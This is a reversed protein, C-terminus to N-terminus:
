VVGETILKYEVVLQWIVQAVLVVDEGIIFDIVVHGVVNDVDLIIEVVTIGEVIVQLIVPAESVHEGEVFVGWIVVVQLVVKVLAYGDVLVHLVVNISLSFIEVIMICSVVKGVVFTSIILVTIGSDLVRHLVSQTVTDVTVEVLISLLINGSSPIIFKDVELSGVERM